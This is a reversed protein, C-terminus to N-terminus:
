SARQDRASRIDAVGLNEPQRFVESKGTAVVGIAEGDEVGEVDCAFDRRIQDELV